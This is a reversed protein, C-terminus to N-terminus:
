SLFINYFSKNSMRDAFTAFTVSKTAALMNQAKHKLTNLACLGNNGESMKLTVVLVSFVNHTM